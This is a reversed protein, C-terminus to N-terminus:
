VVRREDIRRIGHVAEPADEAPHELYDLLADLNRGYHAPFNLRAAIDDHFDAISAYKSFDIIIEQM